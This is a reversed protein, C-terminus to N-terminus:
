SYAESALSSWPHDACIARRRRGLRDGEGAAARGRRAKAALPPLLGPPENVRDQVGSSLTPM